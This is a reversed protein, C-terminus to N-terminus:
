PLAGTLIYQLPNVPRGDVRVEYHLHYYTSLGTSGVQAVVDGRDVRQGKRVLLKSAHAYFTRYGHGHDIEVALGYGAQRGAFVVSGKAAARVPAGKPATIDIGEHPLPVHYIPHVRSRSFYSSLVGDTPLISPTSALLENHASLSDLAEGLSEDLIRARREMANLDYSAAFAEKSLASDMPWLPHSSLSLGGPGGIGAQYVEQDIADLGALMRFQADQESLHDLTSGLKGVQEQLKELEQALARNEADLLRARVRAVGGFGVAAALVVVMASFLAAGALGIRFATPSISFQRLPGHEDKVLLLTWKNDAM